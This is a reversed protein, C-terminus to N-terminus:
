DDGTEWLCYPQECMGALTFVAGARVSLVLTILLFAAGLLVGILPAKLKGPFASARVKRDAARAALFEM